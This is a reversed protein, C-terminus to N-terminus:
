RRTVTVGEGLLQGAVGAFTDPDGSCLYTVTGREHQQKLTNTAELVRVVQRAVAGGSDLVLVGPLAQEIAPRLFPFHTCGLAVVDSGAALVKQAVTAVSAHADTGNVNGQEVFAVWEPLALELVAVKSAFRNKLDQYSQSKLTADTALVAVHGTKTTEAATKLVPVVGVIPVDPNAARVANIAVSTATNCAIVILDPKRKRLVSVANLTLREIEDHPRGGYPVHATDGYYVIDSDPLM